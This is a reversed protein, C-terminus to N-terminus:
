VRYFWRILSGIGYLAGGILLASFGSDFKGGLIALIGFVGIIGGALIWGKGKTAVIEIERRRPM